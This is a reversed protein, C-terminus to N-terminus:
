PEIFTLRVAKLDPGTSGVHSQLHVILEAAGAELSIEGVALPEWPIEPVDIHTRPVQDLKPLPAPDYVPLPPTILQSSGVDLRLTGGARDATAAHEVEVKYRGSRHIQLPWSVTADPDTWGAVWDHTFGNGNAYHISDAATAATLVAEHAQLWVSPREPLGIAIPLRDFGKQTVDSFWTSYADTLRRLEDSQATVLDNKEAPDAQMDYLQWAPKGGKKARELVARYQSTRVAGKDPMVEMSRSYHMFLPRPILAIRMGRLPRALSIGDLPHAPDRQRPLGCLELLTPLVDIHAAPENLQSNPAIHGPWRIFFPVRVGGEHTSGKRGRMGGNYRDSNPGNDTTFIVITDQTLNLEDLLALIRGINSDINEVMAYANAEEPTPLNKAQYKKWLEPPAIWPSHPANYPIYCLFPQDKKERIFDMAADTFIDTIYGKRTVMHDNHQLPPDYYLLWHGGCFGLFEDFGQGNPDRPYHAGNHWKGFCGTAYGHSKFIEAVTVEDERMDEAGRTVGHVGSRLNYRGTLLAARTPACVPSVYYNNLEAGDARLQDLVPTDIHPNDHCGIDGWGQDDTLILVINPPRPAATLLTSLGLLLLPILRM